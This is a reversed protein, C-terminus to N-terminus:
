NNRWKYYDDEAAQRSEWLSYRRNTSSREAHFAAGGARSSANPDSGNDGHPWHSSSPSSAAPRAAHLTAGGAHFSATPDSGNQGHPWPREHTSEEIGRYGAQYREAGARSPLRDADYRIWQRNQYFVWSNSPLWYWWRGQHYKFRWADSKAVPAAAATSESGSPVIKSVAQADVGGAWCAIASFMGLCMIYQAHRM